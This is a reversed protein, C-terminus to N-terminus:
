RVLAFVVSSFVCFGVIALPPFRWRELLLLGTAAIAVDRGGAVASTWVPDYLAAGLVGVVAANVGALGAGAAPHRALWTWLKVGALAVLVGPLFMFMVSVASWLAASGLPAVAAGLYASVTFLPGPMAQTAGYGALFASDSLWGHPVLADRLLPLVVHGGGFVLAGARYFISALAVLSHPAMRAAVPLLVLLAVFAFLASGGARSTVPMAPPAPLGPLHRCLLLGGLAGIALTLIQVGAGGAVLMLCAAALALGARRRDPCLNRAMSWVAQAVVAVAALQLGHLVATLAPGQMRPALLAFAFLVLASPLTFGGWAALAGLWGARSLGILLGLQSSAPGPLMQCLAVLGAFEEASLWRQERVYARKFYGLHAIPGGFSTLGLGLAVRFVEGAGHQRPTVPRLPIPPELDPPIL